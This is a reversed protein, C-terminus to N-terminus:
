DAKSLQLEQASFVGSFASRIRTNIAPHNQITESTFVFVPVNGNLQKYYKLLEENLDFFDLFPYSPDGLLLRNNLDNLGGQYNPDKAFLLVKSFDTVITKIM